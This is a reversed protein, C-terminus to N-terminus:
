LRPSYDEQLRCSCMNKCDGWINDIGIGGTPELVPMGVRVCARAVEKLEEIHKLGHINYFKISQVGVERLMMIATDVDVLAEVMNSSEAGTSINVKGIIGTPSVLANVFTNNCGNGKLLGITYGAATYVQNVHGPDLQAAIDAVVSWQKPDGAGLDM